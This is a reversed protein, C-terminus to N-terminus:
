PWLPTMGCRHLAPLRMKLRMQLVRIHQQADRLMNHVSQLCVTPCLM